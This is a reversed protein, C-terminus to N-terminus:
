YPESRGPSRRDDRAPSRSPAAPTNPAPAMAPAPAGPPPPAHASPASSSAARIAQLTADAQEVAGAPAYAPPQQEAAANEQALRVREADLQQRREELADVAKAAPTAGVAAGGAIAADVAAQEATPPPAPPTARRGTKASYEDKNFPLTGPAYRVWILEYNFPAYYDGGPRTFFSSWHQSAKANTTPAYGKWADSSGAGGSDGPEKGERAYEEAKRAHEDQAYKDAMEADATEAYADVKERGAVNGSEAADIDAMRGWWQENWATEWHTIQSDTPTSNIIQLAHEDIHVECLAKGTDTRVFKVQAWAPLEPDYERHGKGQPKMLTLSHWLPTLECDQFHDHKNIANMLTRLVGEKKRAFMPTCPTVRLTKGNFKPGQQGYERLYAARVDFSAFAVLTIESWQKGRRVTTPLGRLLSVVHSTDEDDEEVDVWLTDWILGKIFNSRMMTDVIHKTRVHPPADKHWGGVIVMTRAEQLQASRAEQGVDALEAQTAALEKVVAYLASEIKCQLSRLERHTVEEHHYRMMQWITGMQSMLDHPTVGMRAAVREMAEQEDVFEPTLFHAVPPGVALLHSAPDNAYAAAEVSQSPQSSSPTRTSPEGRIMLELSEQGQRLVPSTLPVYRDEQASM